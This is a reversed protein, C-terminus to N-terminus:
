SGVYNGTKKLWTVPDKAVAESDREQLGVSRFMEGSMGGLYEPTEAKLKSHGRRFAHAANAHETFYHRYKANHAEDSVGFHRGQPMVQRSKDFEYPRGKVFAYPADDHVPDEVVTQIRTWTAAVGCGCQVDDPRADSEMDVAFEHYAACRYHVRKM